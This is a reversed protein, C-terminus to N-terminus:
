FVREKRGGMEKPRLLYRRLPPDPGKRHTVKHRIDYPIYDDCYFYPSQFIAKLVGKDSLEMIPDSQPSTSLLKSNLRHLTQCGWGNVVSSHGIVFISFGHLFVIGIHFVDVPQAFLFLSL